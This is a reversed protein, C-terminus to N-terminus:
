LATNIFRYVINIERSETNGLIKPRSLEIREILQHVIESTLETSDAYVAALMKLKKLSEARDDTKGLEAAIATQRETLTKKESQYGALLGQYGSEDLRGAANDEYLKRVITTLANLRKEIKSKEVNLKDAANQEDIKKQVTAVSIEDANMQNLVRKVSQWIREKFDAYYIYNSQPCEHPNISHNFCRYLMKKTLTKGKTKVDNVGLSMRKGCHACFLISRFLNEVHHKSPRHRAKVLQQVREYDERSVLPEHTNEVIIHKDPTLRIKKTGPALIESKCGVTDGVYVRNKMIKDVASISWKTLSKEKGKNYWMFRTDGHKAKYAAPSLIERETMIKMIAVIGKGELALRFIEKVNVAAEEDPVLRNKNGPDKRYGYPKQGAFYLGHSVRQRIASKIKRSLDRSYMNNLINKFPAIDNDSKLSDFADNIAIYRVGKERFFVESYYGTQIYNRGLRSLDKTIVLNIKGGDIDGILRQFAPRDFNMGTYGDDVYSDYIKYGSDQCFKELMMKQTTISSSDSIQGDDRSFRMYLAANYVKDAGPNGKGNYNNNTLYGQQEM